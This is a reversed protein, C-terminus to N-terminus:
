LCRICHSFAIPKGPRLLAALELKNKDMVFLGKTPVSELWAGAGIGKAVSNDVNRYRMHTASISM